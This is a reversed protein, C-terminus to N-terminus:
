LILPYRKYPLYKKASAFVKLMLLYKQCQYISKVNVFVKPM